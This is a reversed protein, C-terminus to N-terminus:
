SGEQMWGLLFAVYFVINVIMLCTEGPIKVVCKNRFCAICPSDKGDKLSWTGPFCATDNHLHLDFTQIHVYAFFLFTYGSDWMKIGIIEFTPDDYRFPM